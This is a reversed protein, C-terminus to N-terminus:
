TTCNKIKTYLVEINQDGSSNKEGIYIKKLTGAKLFFYKVREPESRGASTYLKTKLESCTFSKSLNWKRLTREVEPSRSGKEIMSNFEAKSAYIQLVNEPEFKGGLVFYRTKWKELKSPAGSSSSKYVCTGQISQPANAISTEQGDPAEFVITLRKPANEVASMVQEHTQNNCGVGNVSVLRYGVKVGQREAPSGRALEKVVTIDKPDNLTPIWVQQRGLVMGHETGSFTAELRGDSDLQVRSSAKRPKSAKKNQELPSFSQETIPSIELPDQLAGSDSSKSSFGKSRSKERNSRPSSQGSKGMKKFRDYPIVEEEYITEQEGSLIGDKKRMKEYNSEPRSSARSCESDPRSSFQNSSFSSTHELNFNYSESRSAKSFTNRRTGSTGGAVERPLNFFASIEKTGWTEPIMILEQFYVELKTPDDALIQPPDQALCKALCVAVSNRREAPAQPLECGDDELMNILNNLEELTKFVQHTRNGHILTIAYKNTYEEMDFKITPSVDHLNVDVLKDENESPRQKSVRRRM